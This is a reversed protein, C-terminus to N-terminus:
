FPKKKKKYNPAVELLVEIYLSENFSEAALEVKSLSYKKM